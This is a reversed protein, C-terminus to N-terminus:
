ALRVFRTEPLNMLSYFMGCAAMSIPEFCWGDWLGFLNVPMNGSASLMNWGCSFSATVTLTDGQPDVIYFRTKEGSTEATVHVQQLLVPMQELWPFGSLIDSYEALMQQISACGQEIKQSAQLSGTRQKLIARLPYVGPYYAMEGDFETGAQLSNDLVANGAAFDMILAFRRSKVGYLWSKGVQLREVQETQKGLVMWHDHIGEQSFLEEKPYTWGLLARIDQQMAEPFQNIKGYAHFLLHMQGICYLMREQWGEKGTMDGMRRILRALGPAQADVMRAIIQDWFSMPQTQVWAFGQRLLDELWLSLEEIGSAVRSERQAIRRAQAAPDAPTDEKKKETKEQKKQSKSDRDRLWKEVWEPLPSEPLAKANEAYILFLALGHKCPFKRSPCSCKFAPEALDIRTQYPNAGSGKCEGWIARQNQGLSVWHSVKALGRAASASESDPALSLVKETTWLSSM